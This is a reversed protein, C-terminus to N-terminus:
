SDFLQTWYSVFLLIDGKRVKAYGDLVEHLHDGRDAM